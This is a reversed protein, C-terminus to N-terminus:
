IVLRALEDYSGARITVIADTRASRGKVSVLKRKELDEIIKVLKRNEVPSIAALELYPMSTHDVLERVVVHYDADDRLDNMPKRLGDTIMVGGPLSAIQTSGHQRVWSGEDDALINPTAQQHDAMPQEPERFNKFFSM